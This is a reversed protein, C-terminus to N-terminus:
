DVLKAHTEIFGHMEARSRLAAEPIECKLRQSLSKAFALQARTPEKLDWDLLDPLAEGLLRGLRKIFQQQHRPSDLRALQRELAARMPEPVEIEVSIGSAHEVLFLDM